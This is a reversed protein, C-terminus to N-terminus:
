AADWSLFAARVGGAAEEQLSGTWVASTLAPGPPPGQSQASHVTGPTTWVGAEDTPTHKSKHTSAPPQGAVRDGM